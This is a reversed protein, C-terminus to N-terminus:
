ACEPFLSAIEDKRNIVNEVYDVDGKSCDTNWGNYGRLAWTWGSYTEDKCAYYKETDRYLSALFEIGEKANEEFVFVDVDPHWRPAIQMVGYSLGDGSPLTDEGKGDCYLPNGEINIQKCHRLTSEQYALQLVLCEFSEAGTDRKVEADSISLEQKKAVALKKLESGVAYQCTVVSNCYLDSYPEPDPQGSTEGESIEEEEVVEECNVGWWFSKDESVCNKNLYEGLAECEEESCVGFFGGDCNGCKTKGDILDVMDDGYEKRIEELNSFSPVWFSNIDFIVEVGEAYGKGELALIFSREDVSSAFSSDDLAHNIGEQNTELWEGNWRLEDGFVWKWDGDFRFRVREFKFVNNEFIIEGSSFVADREKAKNVLSVLGEKYDVNYLKLVDLVDKHALPFDGESSLGTVTGSILHWDNNEKLSWWWRDQYFTYYINDVLGKFEFVTTAKFDGLEDEEGLVCKDDRCEGREVWEFSYYDCVDKSTTCMLAMYDASRYNCCGKEEGGSPTYSDRAVCADRVASETWLCDGYTNCPDTDCDLKNLYDECTTDIKCLQEDSLGAFLSLTDVDFIIIGGEYLTLGSEQLARILTIGRISLEPADPSNAYYNSVDIQNVGFWQNDRNFRWSWGGDFKILIKEADEGLDVTFVRDSDFGVKSTVLKPKGGLADGITGLAGVGENDRLTRDLLKKLGVLYNDKALSKIFTFDKGPPEQRGSGTIVYTDNTYAWDQENPSWEWRGGIFKYHINNSGTGDKFEFVPSIYSPNTPEQEDGVSAAENLRANFYDTLNYYENGRLYFLHGRHRNWVVQDMLATLTDIKEKSGGSLQSVADAFENDNLYGPGDALAQLAKQESNQLLPDKINANDIINEVSYTDLWCGMSPDDCYGVKIWRADEGGAYPDTPNGPDNTACIRILGRNYIQPSLAEDAGEQLNPNILSYLSRSGAVCETESRVDMNAAQDAVYIERLYNLAFNTTVEQFGCEEQDNVVICMEQYGSPATFDITDTKFDGKAIYDSVLIRTLGTDQFYSNAGSGKLYVKYYVGRDNGAYIHYFVKYQSQPPNTVTTYPIEDFRGMFQPPSDPETLLDLTAGGSPVVGSVYSKCV